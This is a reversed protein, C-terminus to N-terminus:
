GIVLIAYKRGCKATAFATNRQLLIRLVATGEKPATEACEKMGPKLRKLATKTVVVARPLAHNTVVCKRLIPQCGRPLRQHSLPNTQHTARSYHM